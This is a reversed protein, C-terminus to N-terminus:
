RCGVSVEKRLVSGAFDVRRSGEPLYRRSSRSASPNLKRSTYLSLMTMALFHSLRAKIMGGLRKCAMSLFCVTGLM